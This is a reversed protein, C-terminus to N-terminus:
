ATLQLNYTTLQLNYTTLQLNCIVLAVLGGGYLIDLDGDGDFDGWSAARANGWGDFPTAPDGYSSHDRVADLTVEVFDNGGDNRFINIGRYKGLLLDLDGDLDYDGWSIAYTASDSNLAHFGSWRTVDTFTCDGLNRFLQNTGVSSAAKNANYDPAVENGVLLDM